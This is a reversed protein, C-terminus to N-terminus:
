DAFTDHVMPKYILTTICKERFSVTAGLMVTGELPVTDLFVHNLIAHASPLVAHVAAGAAAELAEAPLDLPTLNFHPPLLPPESVMDSAAPM